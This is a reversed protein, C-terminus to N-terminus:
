KMIIQVGAAVHQRYRSWFAQFFSEADRNLHLGKEDISENLANGPKREELTWYGAASRHAHMEIIEIGLFAAATAIKDRPLQVVLAGQLEEDLMTWTPYGHSQPNGNPADATGNWRMAIRPEDDWTGLAYSCGGEGGDVLVEALEWNAKPSVVHHPSVYTM